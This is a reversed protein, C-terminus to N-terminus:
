KGQMREQEAMHDMLQQMMQQMMDMRKQLHQMRQAMMENSMMGPSQGQMMGGKGGQMMGGKGGHMMDHMMGGMMGMGKQMQRMHEAMLQQHTRTNKTKRAKGMTGQMQEFQQMMMGCPSSEDMAAWAGPGSVGLIMVMATLYPKM